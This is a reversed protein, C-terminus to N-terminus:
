ARRREGRPALFRLIPTRWMAEWVIAFSIKSSTLDHEEFTIPVEHVRFGLRWARYAMEIQFFYGNGSVSSLDIAELVGRRYCRFGSTADSVVGIPLGTSWNVYFNAMRSLLLRRFPWNEVRVGAVYRSGLVLDAGNSVAALLAPLHRPNHSHDADMEFVLEAGEALARRFGDRYASGLGQKGQRHIVRIRAPNRRAYLDAIEGTGDPSGDDVVIVDFAPTVALIRDLLSPLAAAEDYTPIVIVPNM